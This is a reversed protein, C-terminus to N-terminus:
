HMKAKDFVVKGGVVTKIIDLKGQDLTFYVLDARKGVAIVGRDELDLAKAPNKTVTHVAQELSCGTYKMVNEIGRTVLFSAGALVNESPMMIAGEETLVVEQDFDKYRGPPMGAWRTIDSVLIINEAGKAKYFTRVEGKTLHHGDAIICTMLGDNSLQPWIPNHHRHITNACGNGLHTSLSAGLAVAENIQSANANTHGLAVKINNERCKKIFEASGEWEPAITVEKIRKGSADHWAKFEEWDPKRIHVPNHAGRFGDLPSIYPGEMHFGPLSQALEGNKLIENLIGFNRLLVQNSETTLTPYFTTIGKEWFAKTIKEVQAENLDKGVFAHSLYGNVQHDIFGPAVYVVNESSTSKTPKRVLKNIKGNKIEIKIPNGDSYLVTDM